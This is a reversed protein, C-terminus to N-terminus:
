RLFGLAFVYELPEAGKNSTGHPVGAPVYVVSGPTVPVETEGVHQIGCGKLFIFAEEENQHTALPKRGGPRVIAWGMSVGLTEITGSSLYQGGSPGTGSMFRRAIGWGFQRTAVESEHVIRRQESLDEQSGRPFGVAFLYELPEDSPNAMAHGINMPLFVASGPAVALAEDGAIVVGNGALFYYTEEENPHIPSIKASGANVRGRGVSLGRTLLTGDSEYPRGEPGTGSLFRAVEGWCYQRVKVESEQVVLKMTM